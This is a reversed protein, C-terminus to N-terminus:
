NLRDNLKLLALHFTEKEIRFWVHNSITMYILDGAELQVM